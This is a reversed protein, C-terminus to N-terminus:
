SAQGSNVNRKGYQKQRKKRDSKVEQIKRQSGCHISRENAAPPNQPLQVGLPVEVGGAAQILPIGDDEVFFVLSSNELSELKANVIEVLHHCQSIQGKGKRCGSRSVVVDRIVLAGAELATAVFLALHAVLFQHFPEPLAVVLQKAVDHGIFHALLHAVVVVVLMELGLVLRLVMGEVRCSQPELLDVVKGVEADAAM